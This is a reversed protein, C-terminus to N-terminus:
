TDASSGTDDGYKGIYRELSNMDPIYMWYTIRDDSMIRKNIHQYHQELWNSWDCNYWIKNLLVGVSPVGENIMLIPRNEQPLKDRKDIWEM